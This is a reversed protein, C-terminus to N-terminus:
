HKILCNSALNIVRLYKFILDHAELYVRAETGVFKLPSGPVSVPVEGNCYGNPWRMIAKHKENERVLNNSLRNELSLDIWPM